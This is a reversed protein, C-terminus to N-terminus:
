LVAQRHKELYVLQIEPTLEKTFYQVYGNKEYLSINRASKTSTFFEYRPQPSYKEIERLLRGGLGKGQHEPHVMLKGIHLTGENVTGRVSGIVDGSPTIAKLIIGGAFQRRVDDLTERLPPITFDNLLKAESQYALLQLTLIASLDDREARLINTADPM